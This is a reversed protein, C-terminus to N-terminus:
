SFLSAILITRRGYYLAEMLLKKLRRIPLTHESTWEFRHKKKMLGYLPKVIHAYHPIWIHYFACAGLFRRVEMQSMCEDMDQIANVTFPSPKRGYAECLHGVVVIGPQGFLSKEGLFPLNVEELRQLVKKYDKVHHIVFKKCGDKDKMKNKEDSCGKIPIDDLFPMMINLICDKLVKNMANVM